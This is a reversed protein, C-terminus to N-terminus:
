THAQIYYNSYEKELLERITNGSCHIPAIKKVGLSILKEVIDKCETLPAGAIHFGGIILYPPRGLDNILHETIRVIGPHSCGVLLIYGKDSRVVLSQEWPPGYLEGLIYIGDMIMTTENVTILVGSYRLVYEELYRSSGAPIYVPIGPHNKLIYPLGGTHDGHSHSIVVAKIDQPKIGLKLLNYKLINPDPGTDFLILGQSTNILISLGWASRLIGKPDLNNDVVIILTVNRIKAGATTTNSKTSQTKTIETIIYTTTSETKMSPARQIIPYTYKLLILLLISAIIIISIIIIALKNM